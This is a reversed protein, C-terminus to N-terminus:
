RGHSRELATSLGSQLQEALTPDVDAGALARVVVTSGAPLDAVLGSMAGRIRRAARHRQVSGGVLKGTILGIRAPESGPGRLVYIVVRGRSVKTGHRTTQSFEAAARMRHAAPLM